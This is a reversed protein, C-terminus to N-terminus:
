RGLLRRLASRRGMRAPDPWSKAAILVIRCETQCFAPCHWPRPVIVKTVYEFGTEHLLDILSRETLWFSRPNMYSSWLSQDAIVEAPTEDPYETYVGGMYERGRWTRTELPETHVGEPEAVHTDILAWGSCVDAIGSVVQFPDEVHYLIGSAFVCDFTGQRDASLERVDAVEFRLNRLGLERQVLECRAINLERADLGLAEKAGARAFAATYGGELCGLDLVRVGRLSGGHRALVLRTRLNDAADDGGDMTFRGPALEIRHATFPLLGDPGAAPDPSPLRAAEFGDGGSEAPSTM